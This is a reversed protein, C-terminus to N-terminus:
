RELAAPQRNPRNLPYPVDLVADETGFPDNLLGRLLILRGKPVHTLARPSERGVPSQIGDPQPDSQHFPDRKLSSPSQLGKPVPTLARPSERGVPSNESLGKPVLISRGEIRPQKSERHCDAGAARSEKTGIIFREYGFIGIQQRAIASRDDQSLGRRSAASDGLGLMTNM